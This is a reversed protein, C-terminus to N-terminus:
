GLIGRRVLDWYTSRDEANFGLQDYFQNNQNNIQLHRLAADIMGLQQTLYLQQETTLLSGMSHLADTIEARRATLENGMLQAEFASTSQGVKEAASRREATQNAFPGSREAQANLYDRMARTQAASYADSQNRIIPDNRDIQLSQGARKMLIDYLNDARGGWKDFGGGGSLGNSNLFDQLSGGMAGGGGGARVGAAGDGGPGIPAQGRVGASGDGAPGIPANGMVGPAGIGGGGPGAPIAGQMGAANIGPANGRSPQGFAPASGGGGVGISGPRLGSGGSAISGSQDTHGYNVWGNQGQGGRTDVQILGGKGDPIYIRSSWKEGPKAQYKVGMQDFFPKLKEIDDPSWTDGLGASQRANNYFDQWARIYQDYGGAEEYTKPPKAFGGSLGNMTFTAYKSPDYPAESIQGGGSQGGPMQGANTQSSKLWEGFPDGTGPIPQGFQGPGSRNPLEPWPIWDSPMTWQGQGPPFKNGSTYVPLDGGGNGVPPAPNNPNWPNDPQPAPAADPQYALQQEDRNPDYQGALYGFLGM